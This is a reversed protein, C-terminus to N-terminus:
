REHSDATLEKHKALTGTALAARQRVGCADLLEQHTTRIRNHTDTHMHTYTQIHTCLSGQASGSSVLRVRKRQGCFVFGKEAFTQKAQTKSQEAHM